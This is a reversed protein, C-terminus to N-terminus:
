ENDDKTIISAHFYQEQFATLKIIEEATYAIQGDSIVLKAEVDDERLIVAICKGTYQKLPENVGIIYADQAEGDGGIIEALYGYNVPYIFGHQPHASGLPRDIVVTLIQGIYKLAEQQDYSAPMM